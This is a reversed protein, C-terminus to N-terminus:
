HTSSDPYFYEAQWSESFDSFSEFDYLILWQDALDALDYLDVICDPQGEPGTRDCPDTFEPLCVGRGTMEYYVEAVQTGTLAYNYIRLDDLDGCFPQQGGGAAGLTLIARTNEPLTWPGEAAPLGDIYIAAETPSYTICLHQWHNDATLAEPATLSDAEPYAATELNQQAATTEHWNAWVSLTMSGSGAAPDFAETEAWGAEATIRIAGNAAGDAGEAFLPAATPLADHGGVSDLLLGGSYHAQDSTWRATLGLVTL